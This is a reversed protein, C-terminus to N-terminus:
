ALRALDSPRIDLLDIAPPGDFVGASNELFRIGPAEGHTREERRDLLHEVAEGLPTNSAPYQTDTETSMINENRRGKPWSM